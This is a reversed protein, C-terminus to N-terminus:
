VGSFGLFSQPPECHFVFACSTQPATFAPHFLFNWYWPPPVMGSVLSHKKGPSRTVICTRGWKTRLLPAQPEANRVFVAHLLYQQGLSWIKCLNLFSIYSCLFIVKTHLYNFRETFHLTPRLISIYELVKKILLFSESPIPTPWVTWGRWLSSEVGGWGRLSRGSRVSYAPFRIHRVCRELHNRPLLLLSCLDQFHMVYGKVNLSFVTGLELWIKGLSTSM